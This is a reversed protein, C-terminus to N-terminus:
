KVLLYMWPLLIEVYFTISLHCKQPVLDEFDLTYKCQWSTDNKVLWLTGAAATNSPATGPLLPLCTPVGWLSYACFERGGPVLAFGAQVPTLLQCLSSLSSSSPRERM